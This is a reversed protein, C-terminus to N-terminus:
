DVAPGVYIDAVGTRIVDVIEQYRRRIVRGLHEVCGEADRAVLLRLFPLHGERSQRRMRLDIWRVFHIRANVSGLERVFEPNHTMRAIRLHFEEDDRLDELTPADGRRALSAHVFRELDQLEVETARECALRVISQELVCRYEYLQFIENADLLRGVFGRSPAMILFGESSLRNLAERLPTRSVNLRRSLAIENIREGPRFQYTMAMLRVEDYVRDASNSRTAAASHDM